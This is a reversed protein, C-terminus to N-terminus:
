KKSEQKKYFLELADKEIQSAIMGAGAEIIKKQWDESKASDCQDKEYQEAESM